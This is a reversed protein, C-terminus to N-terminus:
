NDNAVGQGAQVGTPVSGLEAAASRILLRMTDSRSRQVRAAVLALLAADRRTARFNLHVIRRQNKMGGGFAFVGRGHGEHLMIAAHKTTERGHGNGTVALPPKIVVSSIRNIANYGSNVRRDIGELAFLHECRSGWCGGHIRCTCGTM